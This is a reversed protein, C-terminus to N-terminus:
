DLIIWKPKGTIVKLFEELEVFGTIMDQNSSVITVNLYKRGFLTDNRNVMLSTSGDKKVKFAVRNNKTLENKSHQRSLIQRYIIIYGHRKDLSYLSGIKIEKELNKLRGVPQVM